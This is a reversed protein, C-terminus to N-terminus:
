EEETTTYGDNQHLNDNANLDSTLIPYIERFKETTFKGYRILDQRRQGEWMFERGREDLLWNLTISSPTDVGARDRLAKIYAIAETDTVVGGNMRADAEAYALYMEPLRFFAFDSSSLKYLGEADSSNRVHGNSAIGMWKWCRWGTSNDTKDYPAETQGGNYFFARKDSETINYGLKNEGGGWVVDKLDFIKVYEPDIHYGNWADGHALKTGATAEDIGLIALLNKAMAENFAASCLTTTGGWSQAKIADYEIAFIFEENAGNTTNDDMFLEQYPNRTIGSAITHLTYGMDIVKKAYTKADQWRATGTYVEANLYMRTLLAAVSGQTPRPYAVEGKKPMASGEALLDLCEEEIAKFLDARKIRKPAAGGINEPLAYPPNGFMDMLVFNFMARHFRAEARFGAVKDAFGMHGRAALKDETTQLLFENALTIGKLARTYVATIAGNDSTSWTQNQIPNIYADGWSCDFSDTPLENLLTYQRLLESQGADSFNLDSSGPDGQSVFSWYANIYALGKRYSEEDVYARESTFDTENLPLTNLDGLCSATLAIVAGAALINKFTYKM